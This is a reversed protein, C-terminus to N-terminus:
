YKYECVQDLDVLKRHKALIACVLSASTNFPLKCAAGNPTELM